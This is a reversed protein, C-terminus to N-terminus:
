DTVDFVAKPVGRAIGEAAIVCAFDHARCLSPPAPNIHQLNIQPEGCEDNGCHQGTQRRSRDLRRTRRADLIEDVDLTHTLVLEDSVAEDNAEVAGAVAQVVRREGTM